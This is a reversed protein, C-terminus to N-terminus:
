PPAELLKTKEKGVLEYVYGRWEIRRTLGSRIFGYLWVWTAIPTMWFYAWGHAALWDERDPFMLTAAYGRMGGMAM